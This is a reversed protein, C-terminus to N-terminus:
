SAYIPARIIINQITKHKGDNATLTVTGSRSTRITLLNDNIEAKIGEASSVSYNMDDGDLDFFAYDLNIMIPKTAIFQTTPFDWIPPMNAAIASTQTIGCFGAIIAVALLTTTAYWYKKM